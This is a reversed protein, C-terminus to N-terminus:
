KWLGTLKVAAVRLQRRFTNESVLACESAPLEACAIHEVIRSLNIGLERVAQRYVLRHYAQRESKPMGHPEGSGSVRNLDISGVHPELGAYYWHDRYRLLVLYEKGLQEQAEGSKDKSLWDSYLRYLPTDRFQYIRKTREDGGIVFDGLAKQLREPTPGREDLINITM